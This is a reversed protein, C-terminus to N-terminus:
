GALHRFASRGAYRGRSAFEDEIRMPQHYKAVRDSRSMSGSKSRAAANGAAVEAISVDQTEGPRRPFGTGYSAGSAMRLTTNVSAVAHRVGKGGICQGAGDRLEVAERSSTSAGPPLASRGAVGAALIVAPEMTPKGRSGSIGHGTAGTIGSM